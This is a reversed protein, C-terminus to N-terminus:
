IQKLNMAYILLFYLEGIGEEGVVCVVEGAMLMWYGHPVNTVILTGVSVLM